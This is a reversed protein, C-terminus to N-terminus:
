IVKFKEKESGAGDSGLNVPENFQDLDFGCLEAADEPRIGASVMTKFAVSKLRLTEAKDKEFTQVFPLHSYDLELHMGTVDFFELVGRCFDAAAPAICYSIIAARAKEQNEYTSGQEFSEIVDKPINYMKGIIFADNMFAKDLSELGGLNELFRKIEVMSKVGHVPKKGLVKKEIDEKETRNMPLSSIDEINGRGAVLFKSALHSNINKSDLLNDSNKIVKYLADVRSPGDFWGDLGNSIDFFQKLEKYTFKYTQGPTRYTIQKSYLEKWLGQKSMFLSNKNDEFWKPWDICDPSLWYLQNQANDKLIKSDTLMNATGLMRWFMYDWKFQEGTQMWNPDNLLKLVPHDDVKEGTNDTGRYLKYEGLSFLDPVLCLLFLAAPNQLVTELRKAKKSYNTSSSWMVYRLGDGTVSSTVGKLWDPIRLNIAM